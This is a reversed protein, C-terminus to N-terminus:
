KELLLTELAGSDTAMNHLLEYLNMISFLLSSLLATGRIVYFWRLLDLESGTAICASEKVTLLLYFPQRSHLPPFFSLLVSLAVLRKSETEDLGGLGNLGNLGNRRRDRAARVHEAARREVIRTKCDTNCETM